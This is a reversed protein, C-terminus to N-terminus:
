IIKTISSAEHSKMNRSNSVQKTVWCTIGGSSREMHVQFFTNETLKSHFTKYMSISISIYTLKDSRIHCWFGTDRLGWTYSRTISTVQINYYGVIITYRQKKLDTLIQKIHQSEERNPVYVNIFTVDEQQISEKIMIYHEKDEIITM